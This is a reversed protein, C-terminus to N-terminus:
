DRLRQVDSRSHTDVLKLSVVVARSFSARANREHEIADEEFRKQCDPCIGHTWASPDDLNPFGVPERLVKDCWACRLELTPTDKTTGDDTVM